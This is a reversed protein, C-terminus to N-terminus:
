GGSNFGGISGKKIWDSYITEMAVSIISRTIANGGGPLTCILDTTRKYKGNLIDVVDKKSGKFPLPDEISKFYTELAIIVESTDFLGSGQFSSIQESNIKIPLVDSSHVVMLEVLSGLRDELKTNIGMPWQAGIHDHEDIPNDPNPINGQELLAGMCVANKGSITISGDLKYSFNSLLNKITQRITNESGALRWGNGNCFFRIKNVKLQDLACHIYFFLGQFFRNQLKKIKDSIKKDEEEDLVGIFGHPNERINKHIQLVKLRMDEPSIINEAPGKNPSTEKISVMGELFVRGAYKISDVYTQGNYFIAMDTTGMGIDVVVQALNDVHKPAFKAKVAFSEPVMPTILSIAMGTDAGISPYNPTGNILETLCDMYSKYLNIGFALPYSPRVSFSNIRGNSMETCILEASILHMVMRLYEHTPRKFITGNQPWKLDNDIFRFFNDKKFDKPNPITFDKIPNDLSRKDSSTFLIESPIAEFESNCTTPIFWCDKMAKKGIGDEWWFSTKRIHGDPNILDFSKDKFTFNEYISNGGIIKKFAAMTSSTGFDLSVPVENTDGYNIQPRKNQFIGYELQREKVIAYEVPDNTRCGTICLEPDPFQLHGIKNRANSLLIWEFNKVTPTGASCIYNVKWLPATFNPWLLLCGTAKKCDNLDIKWRIRFPWGNLQLDYQFQRSNNNSFIQVEPKDVIDSLYQSKIPFDPIHNDDFCVIQNCFIDKKGMQKFTFIINGLNTVRSYTYENLINEDIDTDEHTVKWSNEAIFSINRRWTEPLGHDLKIYNAWKKFLAKVIDPSYHNFFIDIEQELANFTIDPEFIDNNKWKVYYEDEELTEPPAIGKKMRYESAHLFRAGPFLLCDPHLGGISKNRWKLIYYPMNPSAWPYINKVISTVRLTDYISVNLNYEEIKIIGLFIGKILTQFHKFEESIKNTQPVQELAINYKFSRAFINPIGRHDITFGSCLNNLVDPTLQITGSQNCAKQPQKPLLYRHM